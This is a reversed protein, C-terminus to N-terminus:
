VLEGELPFDETTEKNSGQAPFIIKGEFEVQKLASDIQKVEEVTVHYYAISGFVYLSGYDKAPKGYLKEFPTKRGIATSPLRNILHCVYIITEAWLEKGLGANSLMCWVKELLTQNMHEALENQQPTNRVTFHRVIGNEECSFKRFFIMKTNTVM